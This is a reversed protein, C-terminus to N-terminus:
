SRVEFGVLGEPEEAFHEVSEVVAHEPGQRCWAVAADVDDSGGEFVAEVDGSPLNRVWGSVGLSRATEQTRARFWVGQVVGSVIVRTRTAAAM